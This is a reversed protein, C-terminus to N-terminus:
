TPSPARRGARRRSKVSRWDESLERVLRDATPMRDAVETQLCRMCIDELLPPVEYQSTKSPRVINGARIASLIEEVTEGRAPLEGALVEYLVVGLSFIDSGPGIDPNREVQEPSMYRLTGQLQGHDTLTEEPASRSSDEGPSEAEEPLPPRRRVKALGWDMLLVEGYPGVLINEPKVDRHIVGHTHAYALARAVQTLVGVLQSLDYRARYDLVERFTYGHVFKMTFYLRGRRDEGLDYVPVTSPHVLMATVRAERLFRQREIPDESLEPRLSKHCVVRSLRMDKCSKIISKGGVAITKFYAYRTSEVLGALPADTDEIYLVALNEKPPKPFTLAPGAM